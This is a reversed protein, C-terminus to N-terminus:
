MIIIVRVRDSDRENILNNLNKTVKIESLDMSM